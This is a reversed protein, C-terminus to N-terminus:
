RKVTARWECGVLYGESGLPSYVIVGSPGEASVEGVLGGLTEDSIIAAHVSTAALPDMLQLLMQQSADVDVPKVRARVTLYFNRSTLPGYAQQDSFPDAPYIDVCPPTPSIVLLPWVQLAEGGLDQAAVQDTIQDALAEVIEQLTAVSVAM